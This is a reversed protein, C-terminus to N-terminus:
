QSNAPVLDRHRFEIPLPDSGEVPRLRYSFADLDRGTESDLDDCFRNIVVCILNHFEVDADDEGLYIQVLDGVEYPNDSPQPINKM